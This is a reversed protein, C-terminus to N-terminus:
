KQQLLITTTGEGILNGYPIDDFEKYDVLIGGDDPTWRPNHYSTMNPNSIITKDVQDNMVTTKNTKTDFISLRYTSGADAIKSTYAFYRSTNSWVVEEASGILRIDEKNQSVLFLQPSSTYESVLIIEKSRDPSLITQEIQGSGFKEKSTGKVIYVFQEQIEYAVEPEPSPVTTKPTYQPATIKYQRGTIEQYKMGGVFSILPLLVFLAM